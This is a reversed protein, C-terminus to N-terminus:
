SVTKSPVSFPPSVPHAVVRQEKEKQQQLIKKTWATEGYQQDYQEKTIKLVQWIPVANDMSQVIIEPLSYTNNFMDHVEFPSNSM